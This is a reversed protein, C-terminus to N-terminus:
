SILRTKVRWVRSNPLCLPSIEFRTKACNDAIIGNRSEEGTSVIVWQYKSSWPQVKWKYVEKLSGRGNSELSFEM